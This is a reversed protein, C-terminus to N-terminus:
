CEHSADFSEYGDCGGDDGDGYYDVDMLKLDLFLALIL